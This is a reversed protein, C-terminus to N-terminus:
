AQLECQGDHQRTVLSELGADLVRGLGDYQATWTALSKRDVARVQTRPPTGTVALVRVSEAPDSVADLVRRSHTALLVPVKESLRELLQVGRDQLHPHLHAEPEDFAVVTARPELRCLAVIALYQLQGDSLSRAPVQLETGLHKVWLGINGGSPDARVNVSEVWDGLGLRVWDMTTTWADQSQENRLSHFVNALNAALPELRSAPAITVAGRVGLPRGNAAAVWAPLVDFAVHVQIQELARQLDALRPHGPPFGVSSAATRDTSVTGRALGGTGRKATDDKQYVALRDGTREFLVLPEHQGPAAALTARESAVGHATVEVDYTLCGKGPGSVPELTCGLRLSGDPDAALAKMGGHATNFERLFEPSRTRRLLELAELVSSKGTGNEGILVRLGALDLTFGHLTRLGDVRLSVLRHKTAM